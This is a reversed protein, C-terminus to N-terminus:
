GFFKRWSSCSGAGLQCFRHVGIQHFLSTSFCLCGRSQNNNTLFRHCVENWIMEDSDTASDVVWVPELSWRDARGVPSAKKTQLGAVAGFILAAFATLKRLTWRAWTDEGIREGSCESGSSATFVTRRVTPLRPKVVESGVRGPPLLTPDSLRDCLSSIVVPNKQSQCRQNEHNQIPKRSQNTLWAIM